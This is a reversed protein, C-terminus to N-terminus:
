KIANKKVALISITITGVISYAAIFEYYYWKWKAKTSKHQIGSFLLRYAQITYSFACAGSVFATFQVALAQFHCAPIPAKHWDFEYIIGLLE